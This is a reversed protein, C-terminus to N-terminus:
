GVYYNMKKIYDKIIARSEIISIYDATKKDKAM